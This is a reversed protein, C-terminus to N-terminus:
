AAGEGTPDPIYGAEVLEAELKTTDDAIEDALFQMQTGMTGPNAAALERIRQISGRLYKLVEISENRLAM